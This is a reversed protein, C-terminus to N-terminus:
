PQAGRASPRRSRGREAPPAAGWAIAPTGGLAGLDAFPGRVVVADNVIPERLPERHWGTARFFVYQDPLAAFRRQGQPNPPVGAWFGPPLAASQAAGRDSSPGLPRPVVASAAPARRPREDAHATAPLVALIFEFLCAAPFSM